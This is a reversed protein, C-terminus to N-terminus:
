KPLGKLYDKPIGQGLFYKYLGKLLGRRQWQTIMPLKLTPEQSPRIYGGHLNKMVGIRCLNTLLYTLLNSYTFLYGMLLYTSIPLGHTLLYTAWPYTPLYGMPLYTPGLMILGRNLYNGLGHSGLRLLGYNQHCLFQNIHPEKCFTEYTAKVFGNQDYPQVQIMRFCNLFLQRM